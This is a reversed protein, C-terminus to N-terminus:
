RYKDMDIDTDVDIDIDVRICLSMFISQYILTFRDVDTNIELLGWM